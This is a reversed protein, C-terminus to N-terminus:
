ASEQQNREILYAEIAAKSFVWAGRPPKYGGLSTALRRVHVESYGLMHAVESTGLREEALLSGRLPRSRVNPHEGRDDELSARAINAVTKLGAVAKQVRPSPATGNDRYAAKMGLVLVAFLERATAGRILLTDGAIMVDPAVDVRVETSM